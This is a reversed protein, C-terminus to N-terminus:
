KTTDVTGNILNFETINDFSAFTICEMASSVTEGSSFGHLDLHIYSNSSVTDMGAVSSSGAFEPEFSHALVFAGTLSTASNSEYDAKGFVVDFAPSNNMSFCKIFETLCEGSKPHEKSACRIPAQPYSEGGVNYSYSQVWPNMRNGPSNKEPQAYAAEKFVTMFSKLSSYRAPILLAERTSGSQITSVYSQVATSHHKLIGGSEQILDAYVTSPVQEYDLCLNINSLTYTVGTDATVLAKASTAFGIRVRIGDMSAPMHQHSLTGILSSHLPVVVRISTDSIGAGGPLTEGTKQSFADATEAKSGHLISGVKGSRRSGQVDEIVAAFTAYNSLDELVAGNQTIQITEILSSPSGNCLSANKGAPVNIDFAMFTNSANIFSATRAPIAFYVPQVADTSTVSTQNEPLVNIKTNKVASIGRYQVLDAIKTSLITNM